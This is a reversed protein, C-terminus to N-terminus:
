VSSFYVIILAALCLACLKLVQYTCQMANLFEQKEEGDRKNVYYYSLLCYMVAHSFRVPVTQSRQWMVSNSKSSNVHTNEDSERESKCLSERIEGTQSVNPSVQWYAYQRHLEIIPVYHHANNCFFHVCVVVCDIWNVEQTGSFDVLRVWPDRFRTNKLNTQLFDILATKATKLSTLMMAILRELNCLKINSSLSRSIM